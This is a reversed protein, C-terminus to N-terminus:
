CLGFVSMIKRYIGRWIGNNWNVMDFQRVSLKGWWRLAYGLGDIICHKTKCLGFKGCCECYILGGADSLQMM